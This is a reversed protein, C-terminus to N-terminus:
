WYFYKWTGLKGQISLILMSANVICINVSKGPLPKLALYVKGASFSNQPIFIKFGYDSSEWDRITMSHTWDHVSTSPYDGSRVYVDYLGYSSFDFPNFDDPKIYFIVADDKSPLNFFIYLMKDTDGPLYIPQYKQATAVMENSIKMDM